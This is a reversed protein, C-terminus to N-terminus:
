TMLPLLITINPVCCLFTETLNGKISTSRMDFETSIM